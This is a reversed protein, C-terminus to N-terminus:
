DRMRENYNSRLTIEEISPVSIGNLLRDLRERISREKLYLASYEQVIREIDDACVDMEEYQRIKSRTKALENHLFERNSIVHEKRM